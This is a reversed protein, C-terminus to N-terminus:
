PDPFPSPGVRDEVVPALRLRLLEEVRHQSDVDSRPRSILSPGRSEETDTAGEGYAITVQRPGRGTVSRGREPGCRFRSALNLCTLRFMLAHRAVCACACRM